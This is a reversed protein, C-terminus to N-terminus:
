KMKSHHMKQTFFELNAPEKPNKIQKQSSHSKSFWSLLISKTSNHKNKFSIEKPMFHEQNKIIAEKKQKQDFTEKFILPMPFFM